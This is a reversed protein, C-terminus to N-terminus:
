DALAAEAEHRLFINGYDVHDPSFPIVGAARLRSSLSQWSTGKAKSLIRLTVFRDYFAATDKPAIFKQMAKTRPNRMETSSVHRNRVLRHMYVLNGVGVTKAFLEMSMASPMDQALIQAVEDHYVHVSAYGSFQVNRAVRQIRGDWIARIIEAPRLKLRQACKGITEWGHQAQQITEAGILLRDIFARGERPDWVHKTNTDSLSPPLVGDEVLLDLQSRGINLADYFEKASM